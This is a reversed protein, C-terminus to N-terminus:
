PAAARGSAQSAWLSQLRNKMPRYCGSQCTLKTGFCIYAQSQMISPLAVAMALQREWHKRDATVM